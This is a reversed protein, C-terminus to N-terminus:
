QKCRVCKLCAYNYLKVLQVSERFGTVMAVVSSIQTFNTPTHVYSSPGNIASLSGLYVAAECRRLYRDNDLWNFCSLFEMGVANFLCAQLHRVVQAERM